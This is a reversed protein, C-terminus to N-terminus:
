PLTSIWDASAQVLALIGAPEGREPHTTALEAPDALLAQNCVM